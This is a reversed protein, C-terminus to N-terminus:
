SNNDNQNEIKSHLNSIEIGQETILTLAKDHEQKMKQWLGRITTLDKELGAIKKSQYIILEENTM